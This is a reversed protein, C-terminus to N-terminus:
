LGPHICCQLLSRFNILFLLKWQLAVRLHELYVLYNPSNQDRALTEVCPDAKNAPNWHPLFLRPMLIIQAFRPWFALQECVYCDKVKNLSQTQHKISPLQCYQSYLPKWILIAETGALDHLSGMQIVAHKNTLTFHYLVILATLKHTQKWGEFSMDLLKALLFRIIVSHLKNAPKLRKPRLGLWEM